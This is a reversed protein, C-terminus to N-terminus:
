TASTHRHRRPYRPAAMARLAPSPAHHFAFAETPPPLELRQLCAALLGATARADALATHAAANDIGAMELLTRLSRSPSSPYAARGLVCTDLYHCRLPAFEVEVAAFERRLFRLDFPANHAVLVRQDLLEALEAAVGAFRPADRVDAASIGHIATTPIACGPQVLSEWERLITGRADSIVVGIEVVRDRVGLGTTELDVVAFEVDAYPRQAPTAPM